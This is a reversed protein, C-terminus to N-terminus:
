HFVFRKGRGRLDQGGGLEAAEAAEGGASRGGPGRYKEFGGFWEGAEPGKGKNGWTSQVGGKMKLALGLTDWRLCREKWLLRGWGRSKRGPVNRRRTQNGSSRRGGGRFPIKAM